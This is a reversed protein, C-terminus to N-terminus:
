TLAVFAVVILLVAAGVVVFRRRMAVARGRRSQEALDADRAKRRATQLTGLTAAFERASSRLGEALMEPDTETPAPVARSSPILVKAAVLRAEANALERRALARWAACRRLEYERASRATRITEEREADAEKLRADLTTPVTALARMAEVYEEWLPDDNM